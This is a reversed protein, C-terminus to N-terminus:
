AHDFPHSVSTGFWFRLQDEFVAADMDVEFLKDILTLMAKYVDGDVVDVTM